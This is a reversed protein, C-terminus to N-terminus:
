SGKCPQFMEDGGKLDNIVTSLSCDALTEVQGAGYM